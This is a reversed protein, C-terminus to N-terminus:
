SAESVRLKRILDGASPRRSSTGAAPRNMQGWLTPFQKRLKPSLVVPGWFEHAQCWRIVQEVETASRGDREVLLRMDTRWREGDPDTKAKADRALILDALLRCLFVVHPGSARCPEVSPEKRNNPSHPRPTGPNRDHNAPTRDHNAPTGTAPQRPVVAANAPTMVVRYVNDIGGRQDVAIVGAAELRRLSYRVGRESLRALKGITAESPYAGGGGDYAHDAIAILVLLDSKNTVPADRLAWALVRVSM